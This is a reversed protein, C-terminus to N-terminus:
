APRRGAAEMTANGKVPHAKKMDLELVGREIRATAQHTDIEVPLQMSRLLRTSRSEVSRNLSSGRDSQSQHRGIITVRKPELDVEIEKPTFGRVEARVTLGERSEKFNIPTRDFLEAEAALWHEMDRGGIRGKSEFIEYARRAIMNFMERADASLGTTKVSIPLETAQQRIAEQEAM